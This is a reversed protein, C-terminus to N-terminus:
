DEGLSSLAEISKKANLAMEKTIYAHFLDEYGDVTLTWGLVNGNYQVTIEDM